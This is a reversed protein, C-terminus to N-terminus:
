QTDGLVKITAAIKGKLQLAASNNPDIQLARNCSQLAGKFDAREFQREASALWQQATVTQSASPAEATAPAVLIRMTNEIRIKLRIADEDHPNIQLAADCSLLAGKLDDGEFQTKALTLWQQLTVMQTAPPAQTTVPAQVGSTVPKPITAEEPTQHSDLTSTEGSHLPAKDDGTPFNPPPVKSQEELQLASLDAGRRIVENPHSGGPEGHAEFGARVFRSGSWKFATTADWDPQAHSGGLLYSVALLGDKVRVNSTNWTFGLADGWDEKSLRALVNLESSSTDIIFVEGYGVTWSEPGCETHVVAEQRGDGTLDTFLIGKEVIEFFAQKSLDKEGNDWRGNRLPITAGFGQDSFVKVCASPYSANLLRTRLDRNQFGPPVIAKLFNPMLVTTKTEQAPIVSPGSALRLSILMLAACFISLVVLARRAIVVRRRKGSMAGATIVGVCIGDCFRLWSGCMLTINRDLGNPLFRALSAFLIGVAFYFTLGASLGLLTASLPTLQGGRAVQVPTPVVSPSSITQVQNIPSTPSLPIGGRSPVRTARKSLPFPDTGNLQARECWPCSSSHPAYVHRLNFRCIKLTTEASSLARQWEAPRPRASPNSHGEGFLRLFNDQLNTDLMGFRPAGPMPRIRSNPIYPTANTRIREEVIPAEGFGAWIGAYPHTGEMLLKFLIVGLAFNDHEPIGDFQSFDQGVLEPPTFDPWRVLCRYVSTGSPDRVQMSDCDILSVLGQNSVMINVENFDGIVYGRSHIAAVASALNAGIRLLHRWTFGDALQRRTRPNSIRFLELNSAGDIRPMLFGVISRDSDILSDIPWCISRHNQSVTPDSPPSNLMLQLKVARDLSPRHFIKALVDIRGAVTYIAGEGGSTLWRLRVSEGNGTRLITAFQSSSLRITM